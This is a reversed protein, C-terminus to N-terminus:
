VCHFVSNSERVDVNGTCDFSYDVGGDTMDVIVQQVPTASDQAALALTFLTLCCLSQRVDSSTAFHRKMGPAKRPEGRETVPLLVASRAKPNVFDTAGWKKAAAFKDPNTDVARGLGPFFFM